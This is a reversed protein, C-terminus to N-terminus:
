SRSGHFPPGKRVAGSLLIMKDNSLPLLTRIKKQTQGKFM